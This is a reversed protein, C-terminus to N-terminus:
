PAASSTAATLIGPRDQMSGVTAEVVLYQGDRDLVLTITTGTGSRRILHVLHGWDIIETGDVAMIMDGSRLDAESAPGDATVENILVGAEPISRGSIGLWEVAPVGWLRLSKAVTMMQDAPVASALYDASDVILGVIEGNDDVLAAGSSGEPKPASTLLSGYIPTGSRNLARQDSGIIVGDIAEEGENGAMMVIIKAGSQHGHDHEPTSWVLNSEAMVQALDSEALNLVAIDTLRDSGLVAADSWQGNVFLALEDHGEIASASTFVTAELVVFAGLRIPAEDALSYVGIRPTVAFEEQPTWAELHPGNVASSSLAFETSPVAVTTTSPIATTAAALLTTDPVSITTSGIAPSANVIAGNFAFSGQASPGSGLVAVVAGVTVLATVALTAAIIRAVDSGLRPTPTQRSPLAAAAAAIESPHRWSRASPDPPSGSGGDAHDDDEHRM